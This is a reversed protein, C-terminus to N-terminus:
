GNLLRRAILEVEAEARTAYKTGDSSYWYGTNGTYGMRATWTLKFEEVRFFPYCPWVRLDGPQPNTSPRPATM